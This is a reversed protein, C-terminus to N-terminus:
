IDRQYDDKLKKKIRQVRKKCADVTLGFEQSAELMTYKDLVIRTLLKFDESNAIDGFILEFGQKTSISSDEIKELEIDYIFYKSIVARNKQMNRIVNRLTNVLWGEPNVSTRFVDIKACAIRFTDQVAEESLSKDSLICM